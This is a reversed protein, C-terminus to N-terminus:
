RLEFDNHADQVCDVDCSTMNSVPMSGFSHGIIVYLEICVVSPSVGFISMPM